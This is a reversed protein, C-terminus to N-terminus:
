ILPRLLHYDRLEWFEKSQILASKKNKIYLNQGGSTPIKIKTNKFNRGGSTPIKIKINKLNRGRSTPLKIKRNKFNRGGSTPIKIRKNKLNRGGSTPLKIKRNKLNWGGSTPIKFKKSKFNRGGSTPIKIKKSKFNRGGSTPKRSYFWCSSGPNTKKIIDVYDCLRSFELNWDTMFRLKRSKRRAPLDIGRQALVDLEDRSDDSGIDSSSYCEEDGGRWDELM